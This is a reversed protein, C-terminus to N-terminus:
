KKSISLCLYFLLHWALNGYFSLVITMANQSLSLGVM